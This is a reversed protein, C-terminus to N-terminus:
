ISRTWHTILCMYDAHAFLCQTFIHKYKSSNVM